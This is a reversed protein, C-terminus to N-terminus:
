LFIRWYTILPAIGADGQTLFPPKRTRLCNVPNNAFPLNHNFRNTEGGYVAVLPAARPVWLPEARSGGSVSDRSEALRQFPKLSVKPKAGYNTLVTLLRRAAYNRIVNGCAHLSRRMYHFTGCYRCRQRGDPTIIHVLTYQLHGGVGVRLLSFAQQPCLPYWALYLPATCAAPVDQVDPRFASRRSM